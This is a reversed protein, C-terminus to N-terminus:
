FLVFLDFFFLYNLYFLTFLYYYNNITQGKQEAEYFCCIGNKVMCNFAETASIFNEDKVAASVLSHFTDPSYDNHFHPLLKDFSDRNKMMLALKITLSKVNSGSDEDLWDYFGKTWIVLWQPCFDTNELILFNM